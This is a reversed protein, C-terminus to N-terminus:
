MCALSFLDQVALQFIDKAHRVPTSSTYIETTFKFFSFYIWSLVLINIDALYSTLITYIKKIYKAHVSHVHVAHLNHTFISLFAQGHM